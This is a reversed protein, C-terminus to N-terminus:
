PPPQTSRAIVLGNRGTAEGCADQRANIGAKVMAMEPRYLGAAQLYRTVHGVQHKPPRLPEDPIDFSSQVGTLFRLAATAYTEGRRAEAVRALLEDRYIELRLRDGDDVSTDGKAIKSSTNDIAKNLKGLVDDAIYLADRALMLGFFARRVDM